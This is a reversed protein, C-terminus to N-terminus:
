SVLSYILLGCIGALWIYQGLLIWVEWWLSTTYKTEDSSDSVHVPIHQVGLGGNLADGIASQAAAGADKLSIASDSLTYSESIPQMEPVVSHPLELTFPCLLRFLVVGWLAYSFVKPAKKLFLRAALVFLIVISAAKTMDLVQMFFTDIM